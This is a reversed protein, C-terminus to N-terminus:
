KDYENITLLLNSCQAIKFVLAFLFADVFTNGVPFPMTKDSIM